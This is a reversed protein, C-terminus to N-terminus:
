QVLRRQRSLHGLSRRVGQIHGQSDEYNERHIRQQISKSFTGKSPRCCKRLVLAGLKPFRYYTFGRKTGDKSILEMHQVALRSRIANVHLIDPRCGGNANVLM